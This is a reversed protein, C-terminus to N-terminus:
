HERKSYVVAIIGVIIGYATYAFPAVYLLFLWNIGLFCCGVFLVFLALFIYLMGIFMVSGVNNAVREGLEQFM